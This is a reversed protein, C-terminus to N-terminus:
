RKLAFTTRSDFVETTAKVCLDTSIMWALASGFVGFTIVPNRYPKGIIPRNMATRKQQHEDM